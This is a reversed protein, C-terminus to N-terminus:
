LPSYFYRDRDIKRGFKLDHPDIGAPCRVLSLVMNPTDIVNCYFIMLKRGVPILWIAFYLGSLCPHELLIMIVDDFPFMKRTVPGKHPSDMPWRHIGRVFALSSSSQYNRQDADSCVTSYAISIGTIQSAIANMIVDYYHMRINLEEINVCHPRFLIPSIKGDISTQLRTNSCASCPM